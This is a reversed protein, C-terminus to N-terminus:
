TYSEKKDRDLYERMLTFIDLTEDYLSTNLNYHKDNSENQYVTVITQECLDVVVCTDMKRKNGHGRVLVRVSEDKFHVEMIEGEIITKMAEHTTIGRTIAREMSYPTFEYTRCDVANQIFCLEQANIMSRHKRGNM